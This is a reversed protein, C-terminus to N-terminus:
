QAWVGIPWSSGNHQPSSKANQILGRMERRESTARQRQERSHAFRYSDTDAVAGTEIIAGTVMLWDVISACLCLGTSSSAIATSYRGYPCGAPTYRGVGIWTSGAM